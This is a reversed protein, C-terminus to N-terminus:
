LLAKSSVKVVAKKIMAPKSSRYVGPRHLDSPLFIAFMGPKIILDMEEEVDEYLAYDKTVWENHCIVHRESQRAYGIVEEDGDILYHIDVYKLHSELKKDVKPETEMEQILIFMQDGDWDYRGPLLGKLDTQSLKLLAKQLLPHLTDLEQSIM